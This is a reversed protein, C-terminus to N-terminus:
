EDINEKKNLINRNINVLKVIQQGVFMRGAYHASVHASDLDFPHDYTRAAKNIIWDLARKQQDSTATGANLAQIAAVDAIDYDALRWRKDRM